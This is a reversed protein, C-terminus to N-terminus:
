DHVASANRGCGFRIRFRLGHLLGFLLVVLLRWKALRDAYLNDVAIYIISAAILPEIIHGPATVFGLTALALTLSHAVTFVTVRPLCRLSNPLCSVTWARIRYPRTGPSPHACLRRSDM